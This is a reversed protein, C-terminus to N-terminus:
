VFTILTLFSVAGNTPADAVQPIPMPDPVGGTLTTLVSVHDHAGQIDVAVSSVTLLRGVLDVGAGLAVAGTDLEAQAVLAQDLFIGHGGGQADGIQARVTVPSGPNVHYALAVTPM